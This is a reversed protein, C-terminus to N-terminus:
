ADEVKLDYTEALTSIWARAADYNEQAKAIENTYYDISRIFEPRQMDCWEPYSYTEYYKPKFTADFSLTDRLQEIMFQHFKKHTAPVKNRNRLAEELLPVIKAEADKAEAKAEEASASMSDVYESWRAYKQEESASDWATLEALTNTMREVYYSDRRPPYALREGERWSWVFSKSCEHAFDSLTTIEGDLVRHTHGTAM